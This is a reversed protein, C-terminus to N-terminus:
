FQRLFRLDNGYFLRIDDIGYKVMAPREVGFGFAFGSWEDPNYGGNQLVVPHVMGAGCVELWGSYRCVRCGEGSCLICDMDAEISSRHGRLTRVASESDETGPDGVTIPTSVGSVFAAPVTSEAAAPGPVPDSSPGLPAVIVAVSAGLVFIAIAAAVRTASFMTRTRWISESLAFSWRHHRQPTEPLRALVESLDDPLTADEQMWGDLLHELDNGITM